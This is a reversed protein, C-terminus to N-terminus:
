LLCAIEIVWLFLANVIVELFRLPYSILLAGGIVGGNNRGATIRSCVM